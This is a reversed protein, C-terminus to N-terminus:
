SSTTASPEYFQKVAPGYKNPGQQSDEILLWYLALLNVFPVLLMLWIWGSKGTDHARRFTMAMNDVAGVVAVVLMLIALVAGGIDSSYEDGPIGADLAAAVMMFVVWVGIWAAWNAWSHSRRGRGNFDFNLFWNTVKMM